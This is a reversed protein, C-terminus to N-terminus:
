IQLATESDLILHSLTECQRNLCCKCTSATHINIKQFSDDPPMGNCWIKWATVSFKTPILEHWLKDLNEHIRSSSRKRRKWDKIFFKGSSSPDWNLHICNLLPDVQLSAESCLNQVCPFINAWIQSGLTKRQNQRMIDPNGYKEKMLSSWLSEGKMYLWALKAHAAQM